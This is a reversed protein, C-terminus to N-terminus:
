QCLDICCKCNNKECEQMTTHNCVSCPCKDVEYRISVLEEVLVNEKSKFTMKNFNDKSVYVTKIKSM